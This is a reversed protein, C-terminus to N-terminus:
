SLKNLADMAQKAAGIDGLQDALKKAALLADLSLTVSVPAPEPLGNRLIGDIVRAAQEEGQNYVAEGLKRRAAEQQYAGIGADAQTEPHGYQDTLIEKVGKWFKKVAENQTTASSM